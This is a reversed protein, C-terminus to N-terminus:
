ETRLGRMVSGQVVKLAPLVSGLIGVLGVFFSVAWYKPAAAGVFDLLEAKGLASLLGSLVSGLAVGWVVWGAIPRTVTAVVALRTGGLAMRIAMERTRGAVACSAASYVGVTAVVFTAAAFLLVMIVLLSRRAVQGIVLDSLPRVQYIPQLPSLNSVMRTLAARATPGSRETKLLLTMQASWASFQEYAFYICPEAASRFEGVAASVGVVRYTESGSDIEKDLAELENGWHRRAFADNVVVVAEATRGDRGDLARGAKIPIGLTQFYAGAVVECRVSVADAELSRAHEQTLRPISINTSTLTHGGPASNTLATARVGPLAEARRLLQRFFEDAKEPASYSTRSLSVEGIIVDRPDFGLNTQTLRLLDDALASGVLMLCLCGAVQSTVFLARLGGGRGLGHRAPASRLVLNPDCGLMRLGPIAGASLGAIIATLGAFALVRWDLQVADLRSLWDGAAKHIGVHGAAALSLGLLGGVAGILLSENLTCALLRKRSAGLASRTAMEQGRALGRALILHAVNAISVFLLLAVAAGVVALQAPLDGAVYRELSLATSHLHKDVPPSLRSFLAAVHARGQDLTAEQRWRMVVSVGRWMRDTSLNDRAHPNGSLPVVIDAGIRATLARAVRLEAPTTFNAALVGVVTYVRDDLVVTAGIASTSRAFRRRWFTETLLAVHGETGAFEGPSFLRGAISRAGALSLFQSTIRGIVARESTGGSLVNATRENYAAVLEFPGPDAVLHEFIRWDRLEPYLLCVRQFHPYSINATLLGAAFSFVLTVSGVGIAMTLIATVSFKRHRALVRATTALERLYDTVGEWLTCLVGIAQPVHSVSAESM